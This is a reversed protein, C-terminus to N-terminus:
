KVVQIAVPGNTQGEGWEFGDDTARNAGLVGFTAALAVAFIPMAFRRM